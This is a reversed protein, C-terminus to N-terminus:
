RRASCMPAARSGGNGCATRCFWWTPHNRASTRRRCSYGAWVRRPAWCPFFTASVYLCELREASGRGTLTVNWIPSIAAVSSFSRTRQRADFFDPASTWPALEPQQTKRTEIAVLRDPERYPLGRLALADVMTFIATNGGIGFALTLVSIAAFGPNKRLFRLAYRIDNWIDRV